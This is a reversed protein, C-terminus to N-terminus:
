SEIKNILLRKIRRLQRKSFAVGRKIRSKYIVCDYVQLEQSGFRQKYSYNGGSLFLMKKDSDIMKELYKYYIVLGPSHKNLAMNYTHNEDYVHEGQECELRIAEVKDNITLVYIHTVFFTDFYETPSLDYKRDHSLNKLEFYRDMIHPPVDERKYCFFDIKGYDREIVRMRNKMKRRHDASMRNNLEEVSKPFKLVFYNHKVWDGVATMGNKYRVEKIEPYNSFLFKVIHRIIKASIRTLEIGLWAVSGSIKVPIYIDETNSICLLITKSPDNGQLDFRNYIFNVPINEYLKTDSEVQINCKKDLM